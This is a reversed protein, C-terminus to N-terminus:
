NSGMNFTFGISLSDEALKSKVMTNPVPGSVTEFSSNDSNEFGHYYGVHLDLDDNLHWTFGATIHHEVIAPALINFFTLNSPVANEGYNYGLRIDFREGLRQQIGASIAWIDEWGFGRVSGDPNFGDKEFGDTNSYNYMRVDLALLTGKVPKYGAGVTYFAPLDVNFELNRNNGLEDDVDWEFDEFWIPSAYSFGLSLKDSVEFRIGFQAGLGFAREAKDAVPYTKFGDGDADEPTAFSAPTVKLTSYAPVISFGLSFRKTFGYSIGFPMKLLQYESEVEGFGFGNPPQPTSILSSGPRLSNDQSYEVGFGGIGTMGCHYAFKSDEAHYILALSPLLADNKRSRTAGSTSFSPLGSGLAGANVQSSLTRDPVFWELGGEIKWGTFVQTGAPNWIITGLPDYFAGTGAGGMSQNVPGIGHLFHGNTAIAGPSFMIVVSVIVILVLFLNIFSRLIINFRSPIYM